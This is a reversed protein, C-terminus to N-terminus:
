KEGHQGQSVQTEGEGGQGCNHLDEPIVNTLDAKLATEGLKEEEMPEGKHFRRHQQGHGKVAIHGDAAREM